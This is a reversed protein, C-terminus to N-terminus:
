VTKEKLQNLVEREKNCLWERCMKVRRIIHMKDEPTITVDFRKVRMHAPITLSEPNPTLLKFDQYKGDEEQILQKKFAEYDFIMNREVQTVVEVFAKYEETKEAWMDIFNESVSAPDIDQFMEAIEDLKLMVHDAEDWTLGALQVVKRREAMIQKLPNNVLTCCVEGETHTELSEVDETLWLYGKVQAEWTSDLASNDFSEMDWKTKTDKTKIQINDPCGMIFENEFQQENKWYPYGDVVSVLELSDEECINGKDLQKAYLIRRRGWFKSRFVNELHTIAGPPLVDIGDKSKLLKQCKKEKEVALKKGTAEKTKKEAQLDDLEKQQVPTFPEPLCTLIHGLSSCREKWDEFILQQEPQTTTTEKM